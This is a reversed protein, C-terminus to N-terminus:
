RKSLWWLYTDDAKPPPDWNATGDSRQTLVHGTTSSALASVGRQETPTAILVRGAEGAASVVGQFKFKHVNVPASRKGNAYVARAWFPAVAWRNLGSGSERPVEVIQVLEQPIRIGLSGAAARQAETFALVFSGPQQAGCLLEYGVPAPTQLGDDELFRVEYVNAAAALHQLKLQFYRSASVPFCFRLVVRDTERGPYPYLTVVHEDNPASVDFFGGMPDGSYVTARPGRLTVIGAPDDPLETALSQRMYVVSADVVIEIASVTKVSGWDVRYLIADNESNSAPTYTSGLTDISGDAMKSSDFSSSTGTASEVTWTGGTLAADKTKRPPRLYLSFDSPYNASSYRYEWPTPPDVKSPNFNPAVSIPTDAAAPDDTYVAPDYERARFRELQGEQVIEELVVEQAAVGDHTTITFRQGEACALLMPHALGAFLVNALTARKMMLNVLRQAQDANTVWDLKVQLPRAPKAGTIVERAEARRTDDAYEKDVNPFVIEYVNPAERTDQQWFSLDGVTHGEILAVGSSARAGDIALGFKGTAPSQTLTGACCALLSDMVQRPSLAMSIVAHTEYRKKANVIQDCVDAAASFSTDDVLSAPIGWGYEADTLFSRIVLASNASEVMAGAGGSARPDWLMGSFDAEMDHWINPDAKLWGIGNTTDRLVLTVYATRPFTLQVGGVHFGGVSSGYPDAINYAASVGTQTTTGLKRELFFAVNPATGPTDAPGQWAVGGSMVRSISALQGAGLAASLVLTNADSWVELFVSLKLRRKGYLLPITTGSQVVGSVRDPFTSAISTSPIGSPDPMAWPDQAGLPQPAGDRGISGIPLPGNWIPPGIDQMPVSVVPPGIPTNGTPTGTGPMPQAGPLGEPM